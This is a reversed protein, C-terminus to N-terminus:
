QTKHKKCIVQNTYQLDISQIENISKDSVVAQYFTKLKKLKGDINSYTGLIVKHNGAEPYLVWSKDKKIEIGAWFDKYFFDRKKNALLDYVEKQTKATIKGTVLPVKASYNSSLKMSDGKNTLYYSTYGHMIRAIPEKQKVRIKLTGKLTSYVEAKAISSHNDLSEELLAINIENLRLSDLIPYEKLVLQRVEEAKVFYLGSSHDIVIELDTFRLNKSKQNGFAMIVLLSSIGLFWSLIKAVKGM